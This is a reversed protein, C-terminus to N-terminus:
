DPKFFLLAYLWTITEETVERFGASSRWWSGPDYLQNRVAIVGVDISDDFAREFLMRSRRAHCGITLLNVSATEPNNKILWEKVALASCYTRDKRIDKDLAVVSIKSEEFGTKVLTAASYLGDNEYQDLQSGKIRVKGTIIMQRYNDRYFIEKAEMLAYDPIFGEVVLIDAMVPKNQALFSYIGQSYIFGALLILILVMLRGFWTLGWREKKSILVFRFV